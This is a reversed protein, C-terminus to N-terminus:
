VASANLRHALAPLAFKIDETKIPQEPFAEWLTLDVLHTMVDVIGEGQQTTDFFWGPRKLPNGSVYKFFHHVSEKVISPIKSAAPRSNAM